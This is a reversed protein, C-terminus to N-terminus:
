TKRKRRKPKPGPTTRYRIQTPVSEEDDIKTHSKRKRKRKSQREQRSEKYSKEAKRSQLILDVLDESGTEVPNGYGVWGQRPKKSFIHMKPMNRFIQDMLNDAIPFHNKGENSPHFLIGSAARYKRQPGNRTTQQTTLVEGIDAVSLDTDEDKSFIIQSLTNDSVTFQPNGRTFVLMFDANSKTFVGSNLIPFHTKTDVSINVFMIGCFELGWVAGLLYADPVRLDCAWICLVADEALSSVPNLQILDHITLRKDVTTKTLQRGRKAWRPTIVILAFPGQPLPKFEALSNPIPDPHSALALHAYTQKLLRKDVKQVVSVPTKSLLRMADKVQEDPQGDTTSPRKPRSWM